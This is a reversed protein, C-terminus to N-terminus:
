LANFFAREMDRDLGPPRVMRRGQNTRQFTYLKNERQIRGLLDRDSSRHPEMKTLNIYRAIRFATVMQATTLSGSWPFAASGTCLHSDTTLFTHANEFGPLGPVPYFLSIGVRAPQRCLFLLNEIVTDRTDSRLGCIFYVIAPIKHQKLRQLIDQLHQQDWHRRADELISPSCSAMSLNFQTFGYEILRELTGMDLLSYDMGNEASFDVQRFRKKIAKLIDFFFERDLLINDDEFNIHVPIDQPFTVLTSLFDDMDVKRFTRGQTLHNACFTCKRPCGRSLSTTLWLGTKASNRAALAVQPQTSISDTGGTASEPPRGTSLFGALSREAEGDIVADIYTHCQFYEPLVSVGAGGVYVPTEPRKNKIDRALALTDDAYAFAFCSIFVADSNEALIADACQDPSPGFRHYRSFFSTPGYENPLLYPRLHSFNSPLALSQKATLPFQSVHTEWGREQLMKKVIVAGLATLRHPTAYFDRFSPVAIAAKRKKM